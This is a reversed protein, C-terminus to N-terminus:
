NPQKPNKPCSTGICCTIRGSQCQGFSNAKNDIPYTYAGGSCPAFFSTASTTSGDARKPNVCAGKGDNNPCSHLSFLDKNCGTVVGGNCSCTIPVSFGDVYSIDVDAVAVSYGSPKVFSAEILSDDNSIPHSAPVVAVNGAWGTPVAFVATAHAAITGAGVNGSVPAPAGANRAHSTSVPASQSNVVTITLYKPPSAIQANEVFEAPGTPKAAIDLAGGSATGYQGPTITAEEGDARPGVAASMAKTALLSLLVARRHFM